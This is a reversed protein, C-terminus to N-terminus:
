LLERKRHIMGRVAEQTTIFMTKLNSALISDWDEDEILAFPMIQTRGANNILIDIQGYKKITEAVAESVDERILLDTELALAGTEKALDLAREKSTKYTFAVQYGESCFQRVIARGLAGAGGTIFVTDAM